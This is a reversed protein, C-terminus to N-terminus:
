TGAQTEWGVEQLPLNHGLLLYLSFLNKEEEVHSETLKKKKKIMAGLVTTWM